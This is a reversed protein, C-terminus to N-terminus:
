LDKIVPIKAIFYDANKEFSAVPFNLLELRQKLNSLGVKQSHTVDERPQVNNRVILKNGDTYIEIVLPNRSSVLNHKVANEVLVELTLSPIFCGLQEEPIRIDAILKDEFRIKLLFLYSEIFNKEQELTSVKEESREIVYRYVESFEKIFKDSKDIDEHILGSLVNLTNFMFHPDLQKKLVNAKMIAQEKLLEQIASKQTAKRQFYSFTEEIAFLTSFLSTTLFLIRKSLPLFTPFQQHHGRGTLLEKQLLIQHYFDPLGFHRMYFYVPIFLIVYLIFSYLLMEAITRLLRKKFQAEWHYNVDLASVSRQVRNRFLFVGLLIFFVVFVEEVVFILGRNPDLVKPVVFTLVVTLLFTFYAGSRNM